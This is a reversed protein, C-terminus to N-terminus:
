ALTRQFLTARPVFEVDPDLPFIPRFCRTHGLSPLNASTAGPADVNIMRDAHDRFFRPECHPSKVVVIEFRAPDQGTALFLSRNFLHVPRSSAVVTIPGTELVATNGSNYTSGDSESPFVGDSLLKVRAEVVIPQFRPDLTGGLAVRITRGVGAAFAAEVAPADVMPLLATRTSGSDILARLIANSDGPAGSSTADAADVLVVHGNPGVAVRISEELSTLNSHLHERVRWFKSAMRMAEREALEPADDTVLEDIVVIANSCLDPVDTFPNGIFMAASLGAPGSEVRQAHRISHGFFGTETILEDGRVLAPIRVRATVPRVERNVLKLLLRAARQGTQVFDVHPYTHYVVIADSARLIRDSVIGHLDFSAVIPVNEGVISRVEEILRAETDAENEAVMAGHLCLYVGDPAGAERVAATFESLIRNFAATTVTGGSTIFRASYTPLLELDPHSDFVELAGRVETRVRRHYDLIDGGSRVVFDEYHTPQPNFSSTEQM